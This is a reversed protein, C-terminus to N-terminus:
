FEQKNYRELKNLSLEGKTGRDERGDATPM